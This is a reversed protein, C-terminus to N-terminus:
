IHILSLVVNVFGVPVAIILVPKIRNEEILEKLKILATPANGVAIIYEGELEQRKYM